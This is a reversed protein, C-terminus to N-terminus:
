KKIFDINESTAGAIDKWDEKTRFRKNSEWVEKFFNPEYNIRESYKILANVDKPFCKGGFGFDNDPGPVRLNKGIRDDLALVSVVDDYNVGAKESIRYLENAMTIQTALFMNAAYKIMEATEFSTNFYRANPLFTQYIEKIKQFDEQRKHGLVVRNMNESDKIAHKERLFEPNFVFNFKPFDVSLKRTTGPEITSRIVVIPDGQLNLNDLLRMGDYIYSLDNEGNQNMPTPLAIFFISCKSLSDKNKTYPEKFKDYPITEFYKSVFNHTSSGVFGMGVFGVKM